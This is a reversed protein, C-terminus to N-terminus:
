KLWELLKKPDIIDSVEKVAVQMVEFEVIEFDGIFKSMYDDKRCRTIYSRLKGITDFTKGKAEWQNYSTGKSYLGTIKNRIKYHIVKM